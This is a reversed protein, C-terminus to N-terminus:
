LQASLLINVFEDYDYQEVGEEDCLDEDSNVTAEPSEIFVSDVEGGNAEIIAM